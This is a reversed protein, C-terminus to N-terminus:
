FLGASRLRRALAQQRTGMADRQRRNMTLPMLELHAITKDLTPAVAFPIDASGDTGKEDKKREKPWGLAFM